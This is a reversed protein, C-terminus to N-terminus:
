NNTEERHVDAVAIEDEALNDDNETSSSSRSQSSVDEYHNLSDDKNSKRSKNVWGQIQKMLGILVHSLEEAANDSGEEIFHLKHTTERVMKALAKNTETDTEKDNDINDNREKNHTIEEVEVPGGEKKVRRTIDHFIQMNERNERENLRRFPTSTQRPNFEQTEAKFRRGPAARKGGRLHPPSGRTVEAYSNNENRRATKEQFFTEELDALQFAGKVAQDLKKMEKVNQEDQMHKLFTKQRDTVWYCYNGVSQVEFTKEGSVLRLDNITFSIFFTPDYVLNKKLDAKEYEPIAKTINGLILSGVEKVITQEEPFLYVESIMTFKETWLVRAIIKGDVVRIRDFTISFEPKNLSNQVLFGKQKNVDQLDYFKFENIQKKEMKGKAAEITGAVTDLMKGIQNHTFKNLHLVLKDVKEKEIM